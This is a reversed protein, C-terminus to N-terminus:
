YNKVTSCAHIKTYRIDVKARCSNCQYISHRSPEKMYWTFGPVEKKPRGRAGSKRNTNSKKKKSEEYSIEQDEEQEEENEQEDEEDGEEEEDRSTLETVRAEKTRASRRPLTDSNNNNDCWGLLGSEELERASTHFEHTKKQYIHLTQTENDHTLKIKKRRTSGEPSSQQQQQIDVDVAKRKLNYFPDAIVEMEDVTTLADSRGEEEEIDGTTDSGEEVSESTELSDEKRRCLEVVRKNTNVAAIQGIFQRYDERLRRQKRKLKDIIDASSSESHVHITTHQLVTCHIVMQCLSNGRYSMGMSTLQSQGEYAQVAQVADYNASNERIRTMIDNLEQDVTEGFKHTDINHTTIRIAEALPESIGVMRDLTNFAMDFLVNLKEFLEKLGARVSTEERLKRLVHDILVNKVEDDYLIMGCGYKNAISSNEIYHSLKALLLERLVGPKLPYFPIMMGMRRITYIQLGSERMDQEIYRCAMDHDPATMASIDDGGYNSTFFVFLITGAPLRFHVGSPTLYEGKDLLGNINLMFENCVKDVEDIFLMLCPPSEPEATEPVAQRAQYADLETAFLAAEGAQKLQLLRRCSKNVYSSLARNLLDALTNGDKYGVLGAGAGTMCNIQSADSLTSGDLEVCQGEYEYGPDMGLLKRTCLFFETKGCGSTGSVCVKYILPKQPGWHSCKTRFATAITASVLYISQVQDKISEAYYQQILDSRYNMGRIPADQLPGHGINWLQAANAGQRNGLSQSQKRQQKNARPKGAATTTTEPEDDVIIVDSTYLVPKDRPRLNM